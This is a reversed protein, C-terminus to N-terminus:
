TVACNRNDILITYLSTDTSFNEGNFSIEEGGVVSGFRPTISELVPTLASSYTITGTLTSAQVGDLFVQATCSYNDNIDDIVEFGRLSVEGVVCAGTGAGYFRYYRYKLEQGEPYNYYNWGEHIEQGVTFIKTWPGSSTMAGEFRLKNVFNSKTFRSM